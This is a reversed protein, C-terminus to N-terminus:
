RSFIHVILQTTCTCVAVARSYIRRGERRVCLATNLVGGATHWTNHAGAVVIRDGCCDKICIRHICMSTTLTPDPGNSASACGCYALRLSLFVFFASVAGDAAFGDVCCVCGARTVFISNRLLRTPARRSFFNPPSPKAPQTLRRRSSPPHPQAM